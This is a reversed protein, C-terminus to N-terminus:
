KKVIKGIVTKSLTYNNLSNLISKYRHNRDAKSNGSIRKTKYTHQLGKKNRQVQCFQNQFGLFQSVKSVESLVMAM